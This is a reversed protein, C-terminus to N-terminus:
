TAPQRPVRLADAPRERWVGCYGEVGAADARVHVTGTGYSRKTTSSM